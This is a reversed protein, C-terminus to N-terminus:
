LTELENQKAAFPPRAQADVRLICAGGNPIVLDGLLIGQELQGVAKDVGIERLLLQRQGALLIFHSLLGAKAHAFLGARAFGCSQLLLFRRQRGDSAFYREVLGCAIKFRSLVLQSAKPFGLSGVKVAEVEGKGSRM